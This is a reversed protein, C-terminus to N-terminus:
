DKRCEWDAAISSYRFCLNRWLFRYVQWRWYSIQGKWYADEAQHYSLRMLWKWALLDKEDM